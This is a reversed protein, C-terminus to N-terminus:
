VALQDLKWIDSEQDTALVLDYSYYRVGVFPVCYYWQAVEAQFSEAVVEVETIGETLEQTAM